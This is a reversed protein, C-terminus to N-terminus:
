HKPSVEYLTGKDTRHRHEIDIDKDPGEQGEKAETHCHDVPRAILIKTAQFQGLFGMRLIM